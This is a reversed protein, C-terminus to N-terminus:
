SSWPGEQGAEYHDPRIGFAEIMRQWGSGVALLAGLRLVENSSFHNLLREHLDESIPGKPSGALHESFALAAKWADPLDSNPYDDLQRIVEDTLGTRVLSASKVM